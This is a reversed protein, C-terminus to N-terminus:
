ICCRSNVQGCLANRTNEAFFLYFINWHFQCLLNVDCPLWPWEFWRWRQQTEVAQKPWCCLFVNCSQMVSGKHGTSDGWLLGAIPCCEWAMVDCCVFRVRSYEVCCWYHIKLVSLNTCSLRLEPANASVWRCLINRTNEAFLWYDKYILM